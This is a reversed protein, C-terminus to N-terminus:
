GSEFFDDTLGDANPDIAIEYYPLSTALLNGNIDFINGRVAAIDKYQFTFNESVKKWHEREYVNVKITKGIIFATFVCTMLYVAYIRLLIDKKPEM